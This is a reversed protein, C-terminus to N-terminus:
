KGKVIERNFPMTMCRAGGGGRALEAGEITIVFKNYQSPDIKGAAVEDAPLVTYGNNNLEEITYKNRGYGMIQGPAVAFFNTGSHWQEREQVVMGHDKGGCVLPHLDIGVSSLGRVLNPVEKIRNDKGEILQIHITKYRNEKLILPEFVMCENINLLTFVMDLHIFSEPVSPLEQIFIHKINGWKKVTAAIADIGQPTTRCGNGILLVDDRAILVDGGEFSVGSTHSKFETEGTIADIFMPHHTFVANMLMAERERIRNAMRSIFVRNNIALSADRMFFLNHLPKLAYCENNLFNSLNNKELLVGEIFLRSLEEPTSSVLLKEALQEQGELRCFDLVLSERVSPNQLLDTFLDRLQYTATVKELAGAFNDYHVKAVDLNLIDSYLAEQINKPSMNEVEHGPRHLLVGNLKGVESHIAIRNRM